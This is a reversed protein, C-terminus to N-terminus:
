SKQNMHMKKLDHLIFKKHVKDMQSQEIVSFINSESTEELSNSEIDINSNSKEQKRSNSIVNKNSIKQTMPNHLLKLKTRHNVFEAINNHVSTQHSQKRNVERQKNIRILPKAIYNNLSSDVSSEM